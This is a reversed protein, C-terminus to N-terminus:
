SVLCPEKTASYEPASPPQMCRRIVDNIGRHSDCIIVRERMGNVGFENILPIFAGNVFSSSVAAVGMFSVHVCSDKKLATRIIEQLRIGDGYTFCYGIADAVRIVM